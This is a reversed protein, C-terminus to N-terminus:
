TLLILTNNGYESSHWIFPQMIDCIGASLGIINPSTTCIYM